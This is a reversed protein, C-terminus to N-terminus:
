ATVRIARAAPIGHGLKQQENKKDTKGPPPEPRTAYRPLRAASRGDIRRHLPHHYTVATADIQWLAVGQHDPAMGITTGLMNDTAIVSPPGQREQVNRGDLNGFRVPLGQAVEIEVAQDGGEKEISRGIQMRGAKLQYRGGILGEIRPRGEDIAQGRGDRHQQEGEPTTMEIQLQRTLHEQIHHGQSDQHM